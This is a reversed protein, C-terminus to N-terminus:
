EEEYEESTFNKYEDDSLIEIKLEKGCESLIINKTGYLKEALEIIFVHARRKAEHVLDVEKKLFMVEQELTYVVEYWNSELDYQTISQYDCLEDNDTYYHNIRGDVNKIKVNDDIRCFQKKDNAMCETLAEIFTYKKM